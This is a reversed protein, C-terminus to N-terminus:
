NDEEVGSASGTCDTAAAAAAKKKKKKKKDAAAPVQLSSGSSPTASQM